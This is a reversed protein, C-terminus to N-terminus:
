YLVSLIDKDSVKRIITKNINEQLIVRITSDANKKDKKMANLIQQESHNNGKLIEPKPKTEWGYCSLINFVRKKYTSSCISLKESLDIARSIGWAIADGHTIIGLGATSELAHGFTHGFNLYMRINKETFDKQVVLAKAKVCFTVITNLLKKDRNQIKVINQEFLAVSDKSYLLATKVAEALGSRYQDKNLSQIFYPYIHITHAPFFAGVMNKYNEFDCGTKGGVAADVMSLLTTPILEVNSGRKFISAAFATMDCIVGGGIAVFTDNRTFNKELAAKIISLVSDITKYKEGPKLILLGNKKNNKLSQLFPKMFDLEAITTDTVFFRRSKDVNTKTYLSLFDPIGEYFFTKTIKTGIHISPYKISIPDSLM